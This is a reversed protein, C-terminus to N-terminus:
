GRRIKKEPINFIQWLSLPNSLAALLKCSTPECIFTLALDQTDCHPTLREDDSATNVRATQREEKIGPTLSNLNKNMNERKREKERKLKHHNQMCHQWLM